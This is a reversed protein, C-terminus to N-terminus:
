KKGKNQRKYVHIAGIFGIVISGTVLGYAGSPNGQIRLYNGINYSVIVQIASIVIVKINHEM